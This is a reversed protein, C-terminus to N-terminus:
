ATYKHFNGKSNTILNKEIQLVVYWRPLTTNWHLNEVIIAPM